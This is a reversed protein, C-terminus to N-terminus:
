SALKIGSRSLHSSPVTVSRWSILPPSRFWFDDEFIAFEVVKIRISIEYIVREQLKRSLCGIGCGADLVTLEAVNEAFKSLVHDSNMTCNSAGEGEDGVKIDLDHAVLNWFENKEQRKDKNM